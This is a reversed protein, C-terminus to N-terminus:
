LEDDVTEDLLRSYIETTSITSHGLLKQVIHLSVRQHNLLAMAFTHRMTHIDIKREVGIEKMFIRLHILISSPSTEPFLRDGKQDLYKLVILQPKGNFLKWLPLNIKAGTKSKTKNAEKRLRLGNEEKTIMEKSLYGKKTKRDGLIDGIRLGTYIGFLLIDKSLEYTVKRFVPLKNVELKELRSVEEPYTLFVPDKKEKKRKIRSLPNEKVLGKRVAEEMYVNLNALMESTYNRSLKGKGNKKDANLWHSELRKFFDYNLEKFSINVKFMKLRSVTALHQRITGSSIDKNHTIEYELFDVFSFYEGGSLHRRIDSLLISENASRKEDFYNIAKLKTELMLKNLAKARDSKIVEKKKDSWESLKVKDITVYKPNKEGTLQMRMEIPFFKKEKDKLHEKKRNFIFGITLRQM